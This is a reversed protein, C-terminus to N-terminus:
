RPHGKSTAVDAQDSPHASKIAFATKWLRWITSANYGLVVLAISAMTERFDFMFLPPSYFITSVEFLNFILASCFVIPIALFFAPPARHVAVAGLIVLAIGVLLFWAFFSGVTLFNYKQILIFLSIVIMFIRLRTQLLINLDCFAKEFNKHIM